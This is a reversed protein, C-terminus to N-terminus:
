KVMKLLGWEGDSAKVSGVYVDVRYTQGTTLGTQTGFTVNKTDLNYTWFGDTSWRFYKDNANSAGADAYSEVSDTQSSQPTVTKAIGVSPASQSGGYALGTCDDTIRVKVPVVRGAKASNIVFSDTTSHTFPELYQISYIQRVNVTNDSSSDSGTGSDKDTVSVTATYQGPTAYAHTQATQAGQTSANFTTNTSGDGWNIAVAWPGDSTGPDSFSISLTANANCDVASSISSTVTPAVNAASWDFSDTAVAHEGDDAQVVVTGSGNDTTALSWSWTGNGNDTVTGAGSFKTITLTSNGDQDTFSGNTSLTSGEDGNADNAGNDVAPAYSNSDCADGIGDGDLDSQDANAVAPCNDVEDNVGDDDADLDVPPQCPPGPVTLTVEAFTSGSNLENNALGNADNTATFTVKATFTNNVGCTLGTSPATVTFQTALENATGYGSISGSTPNPGASIISSTDNKAISVSVPFDVHNPNSPNETIYGGVYYTATGGPNLTVSINKSQAGTTLTDGDVDLDDAALAIGGFAMLFATVAAVVAFRPTRGKTM